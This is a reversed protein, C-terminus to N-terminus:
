GSSQPRKRKKKQEDREVRWQPITQQDTLGAKIEGNTHSKGAAGDQAHGTAAAKHAAALLKAPLKDRKARMKALVALKAALEQAVPLTAVEGSIADRRVFKTLFFGITQDDPYASRVACRAIEAARAAEVERLAEAEQVALRGGGGSGGKIKKGKKAVKPPPADVAGLGEVATSAEGVELLHGRRTWWPLAAELTFDPRRRMVNRVVEENEMEFISCTSYVVAVVAPFSMAHLILEEQADALERLRTPDREPTRSMGSSSCSPDLLVHTVAAYAPDDPSADLFSAHKTVVISAGKAEMMECLLECRRKNLEFAFVCGRNQMLAALHSTKNGPAACADIVTSGPPPALALAPFCSAKQQVIAEGRGVMPIRSVDSQGKPKFVLLDPVDADRYYARHGPHKPDPCLFHGTEKLAQNAGGLGIKLTNIRVYRPLDPLRYDESSSTDM